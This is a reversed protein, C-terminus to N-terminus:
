TKKRQEITEEIQANPTLADQTNSDVPDKDVMLLLAPLFLFDLLLACAITIAMLMGTQQNVLFTSQSLLAFGVILVVTTVWLARGVTSFAYRIADPTSLKMERRARVYKSLFHVTDDVVIGISIAFVISAAMGLVGYTLAWIGIAMIAPTLNPVLSLAGLKLSKLAFFLILSILVLALASGGMMQEINRMTINSFMIDTSTGKVHMVPPTNDVLWQEARQNFDIIQSTSLNNLTVAIKTASKDVNIQNNLDLGYPLSMEYLLLYQAALDQQEPMKYWAPDDGHLNQNLRKLTDAISNVHVVEPQAELWDQFQAIRALFEPHNIGQPEGSEVSYFAMSIGTLNDIVYDSDERFQVSEDFYEVFNDDIVMKPIMAAFFILMLTSGWFLPKQRKIVFDALKAMNDKHDPDLNKQIRVPLASVWAPLFVVSFLFAFLVGMATINGLDHFPPADSANMALFGIATTLSTLFIPGINIRMSEVIADNKSYGQKMLALMSILFHVSDAVALTMIITPASASPPTLAIGFWGAMGMAATISFAIVFIIGMLSSFSKLLVLLMIFIFLYMLPILTGMDIMSAETFAHNLMTIGSAHVEFQPYKEKFEEILDRTFYVAEPTETQNQMSFQNIINIGTVTGSENILSHVLRPESLAIKKIRELDTQTLSEAQYILDEVILDDEEAYTHQYNSISDVRSSYPIQWAQETFWEVAALNEATFLQGGEKPTLAILINDEKSYTNQLKEFALLEPNEDSFFVRYDTDFTLNKMGSAILIAIMFSLLIVWWRYQILKLTYAQIFSPQM